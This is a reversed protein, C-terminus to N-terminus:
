NTTLVLEARVLGPEVRGTATLEAARIRASRQLTDLLAVLADFGVADLTVRIRRNDERDVSAKLGQRYLEADLDVRMDRMAPVSGEHALAAIEDAQRQAQLLASRQAAVQRALRESDRALPQVIGLWVLLALACAAAAIWAAREPPTRLQWWQMWRERAPAAHTAM